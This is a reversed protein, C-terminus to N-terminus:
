SKQQYFNLMYIGGLAILFLIPRILQGIPDNVIHTGMAGILISTMGIMAYKLVKPILIAIALLLEILGIIFYFGNPFGWNQFMEIVSPNNTLKGLSALLFGISILIRLTWSVILKSKSM